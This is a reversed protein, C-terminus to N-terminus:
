IYLNLKQKFYINKISMFKIFNNKCKGLKRSTINSLKMGDITVFQCEEIFILPKNSATNIDYIQNNRFVISDEEGDTYNHYRVIDILYTKKHNSHLSQIVNDSFEVKGAVNKTSDMALRFFESTIIDEEDVRTMLYDEFVNGRIVLNKFSM